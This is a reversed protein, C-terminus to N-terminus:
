KSQSPHYSSSHAPGKSRKRQPEEGQRGGVGEGESEKGIRARGRCPYDGSERQRNVSERSGGEEEGVSRPAGGGGVSESEGLRRWRDDYLYAEIILGSECETELSWERSERNTKRSFELHSDAFVAIIVRVYAVYPCGKVLIRRVEGTLGTVVRRNM